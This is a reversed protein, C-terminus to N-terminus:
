IKSLIFLCIFFLFSFLFSFFLSPFSFFTVSGEPFEDPSSSYTSTNKNTTSSSTAFQCILSDDNDSDQHASGAEQAHIEQDINGPEPTPKKEGPSRTPIEAKPSRVTRCGSRHSHDHNLAHVPPPPLQAKNEVTDDIDTDTAGRLPIERECVSSSPSTPTPAYHGSLMVTARTEDQTTEQKMEQTSEPTSRRSRRRKREVQLNPKRITMDQTTGDGRKVEVAADGM